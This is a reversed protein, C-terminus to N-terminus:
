CSKDSQAFYCTFNRCRKHCRCRYPIVTKCHCVAIVYFLLTHYISFNKSSRGVTGTVQSTRVFQSLWLIAVISCIILTQKWTVNWQWRRPRQFLKQGRDENYFIYFCSICHFRWVHLEEHTTVTRKSICSCQRRKNAKPSLERLRNSFLPVAKKTPNNSANSM